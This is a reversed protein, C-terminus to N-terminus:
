YNGYKKQVKRALIILAADFTPAGCDLTWDHYNILHPRNEEGEWFGGHAINEKYSKTWEYPGIELWCEFFKNQKKDDNITGTKDVNAYFIDMNTEISRHDGHMSRKYYEFKGKQNRFKFLPTKKKKAAIVEVTSLPHQLADFTGSEAGYVYPANLKPHDLLFWYADYANKFRRTKNM